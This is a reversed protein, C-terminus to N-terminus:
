CKNIFVISPYRLRTTKVQKHCVPGSKYPLHFKTKMLFYQRTYDHFPVQLIFTNSKQIQEVPHIKLTEPNTKNHLLDEVNQLYTCQCARM